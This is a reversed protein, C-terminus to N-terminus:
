CIYAIFEKNKISIIDSATQNFNYPCIHPIVFFSPDILYKFRVAWYKHFVDAGEFTLNVSPSFSKM